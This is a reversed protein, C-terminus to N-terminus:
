DNAPRDRGYNDAIIVLDLIDVKGDGNLDAAPTSSGFRSAVYALDLLNVRGDGNVDGRAPTDTPNHKWIEVGIQDPDQDTRDELSAIKTFADRCLDANDGIVTVTGPVFGSAIHVRNTTRDIALGDAPYTDVDQALPFHFYGGM